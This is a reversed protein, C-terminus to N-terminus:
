ERRYRMLPKHKDLEPASHVWQWCCRCFYRFCQPDRCFIPGQQLNCTSCLAADIYPDIQIKKNFHAKIDVFEAQVAKMYSRQNNFTVRASGIPYKFKDTDIGVYAVGGFLDHMVAALGEATLMGHLAGVFVTKQTDLRQAPSKVYNSDAIIWPIVQVDKLKSRRSSLAFFYRLVSRTYDHTCAQLLAKVNKDHEFIVYVYGCKQQRNEQQVQPRNPPWQVRISGYGAFAEVLQGDSIDFPVGGLFVKPSYIPNKHPKVPLQGSWTCRPESQAASARHAKAQMEIPDTIRVQNVPIPDQWRRDSMYSLAPIMSTLMELGTTQGIPSSIGPGMLSTRSMMHGINQNPRSTSWSTLDFGRKEEERMMARVNPACNSNSNSVPTMSRDVRNCPSDLARISKTLKEMSEEMEAIQDCQNDRLFSVPRSRNFSGGLGSDRTSNLTNLLYSGREQPPGPPTWASSQARESRVEPSKYARASSSHGQTQLESVTSFSVARSRQEPCDADSPNRDWKKILKIADEIMSGRRDALPPRPVQLLNAVSASRSRTSADSDRHHSFHRALEDLIKGDTPTGSMPELESHDESFSGVSEGM